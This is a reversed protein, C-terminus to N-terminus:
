GSINSLSDKNKMRERDGIVGKAFNVLESGNIKNL